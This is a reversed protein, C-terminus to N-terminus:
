RSAAPISVSKTTARKISSRAPLRTPDRVVTNRTAVINRPAGAPISVTRDYGCGFGRGSSAANPTTITTTLLEPVIMTRERM